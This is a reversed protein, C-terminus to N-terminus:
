VSVPFCTWCSDRLPGRCCVLFRIWPDAVLTGLSFTQDLFPAPMLRWPDLTKLPGSVLRKLDLCSGPILRKLDLCPGPILRKLDLCPGPMLRWWSISGTVFIFSHKLDMSNLITSQNNSRWRSPLNLKSGRNSGQNSGRNSAWNVVRNSMFSHKLDM